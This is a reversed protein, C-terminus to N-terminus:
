PKSFVRTVGEPNNTALSVGGLWLMTRTLGFVVYVLEFHQNIWHSVLKCNM